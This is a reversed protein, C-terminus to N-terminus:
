IVVVINHVMDTFRLSVTNMWCNVGLSIHEETEKNIGNYHYWYTKFHTETEKNIGNYHSWYTKFHKQHLITFLFNYVPM